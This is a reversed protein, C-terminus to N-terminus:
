RFSCGLTGDGSEVLAVSGDGGPAHDPDAGPDQRARSRERSGGWKLDELGALGYGAYRDVGVTWLPCRCGTLAGVDKRM